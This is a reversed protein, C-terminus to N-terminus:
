DPRKTEFLGSHLMLLLKESYDKHCTFFIAHRSFGTFIEIGAIHTLLTHMVRLLGTSKNVNNGCIAIIDTEEVEGELLNRLDPMNEFIVIRQGDSESSYLIRSKEIITNTLTEKTYNILCDRKLVLSQIEIEDSYEAVITTGPNSQNFTNLIKVPINAEMAPLLTDPHIVKAGFFSLRRVQPFSLKHLQLANPVVRPDTSMIGDVDTYIQIESAKIMEGFIAASFDSGGRGLLTIKGLQNSGIFGQAIILDYQNLMQALKQGEAKTESVLYKAALFNDNTKIFKSSDILISNKGMQRCFEDFIITSFWEGFSVLKAFNSDSYEGLIAIGECFDRLELFTTEFAPFNKLSLLEEILKTHHAYINDLFEQAKNKDSLLLDPLSVLMNTIGSCASLVILSPKSQNVIAKYAQKMASADKISTGGFKM